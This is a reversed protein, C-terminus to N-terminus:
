LGDMLRKMEDKFETVQGDTESDWSKRHLSVVTLSVWVTGWSVVFVKPM